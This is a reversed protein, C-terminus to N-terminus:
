NRGPTQNKKLFEMETKIMDFNPRIKQCRFRYLSQKTVLVILNEIRYARLVINNLIIEDVHFYM